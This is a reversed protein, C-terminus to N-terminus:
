RLGPSVAPLAYLLGAGSLGGFICWNYYSRRRARPFAFGAGLLPNDGRHKDIGARDPSHRRRVAMLLLTDWWSTARKGEDLTKDFDDDVDSSAPYSDRSDFFHRSTNLAFLDTTVSSSCHSEVDDLHGRANTLPRLHLDQSDNADNYNAQQQQQLFM